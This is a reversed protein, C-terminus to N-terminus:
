GPSGRSRLLSFVRRLSAGESLLSERSSLRLSIWLALAAYLLQSAGVVVFALLGAGGETGDTQLVAKFALVTQVVPIWAIGVTLQLGPLIAVVAPLIIFQQMVGLLSQGQKFTNALSAVAVLLSSLFFLFILCIPAIALFSSWPIEISFGTSGALQAVLHEAALGMGLLNLATAVVAACTVALVKGLLTTWRPTPALLTTEATKREKEGATADVAPYFAGLAAMAM